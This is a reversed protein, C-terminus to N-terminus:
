VILMQVEIWRAQGDSLFKNKSAEDAIEYNLKIIGVFLNTLFISGIFIFLV